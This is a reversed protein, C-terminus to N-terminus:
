NIAYLMSFLAGYHRFGEPTVFARGDKVSLLGNQVLFAFASKINENSLAIKETQFSGNYAAIALYKSTLEDHPLHYTFEEPYAAHQLMEKVAPSNKGINYSVGDSSMSQASLGFGKYAEGNLMRSRLYSSTGEDNEDLSFTNQGFRAHYGMERFAAYYTSYQSYLTEKDPIEKAKIMNTRLEYLTVHQPTLFKILEIDKHITEPNQGKLGYMLDLNIKEIGAARAKEICEKMATPTDQKRKHTCLVGSSSSQIGLSLRKIGSRAIREIKSPTLTGFTGEISPEFGPALQMDAITNNYIDLLLSFCEETLSTPTGGGIDFGNLQIGPYTAKFQAIDKGVTELYHRQTAEDPCIIRTYECFSCLQKCFPIHLYFSLRKDNAFSLPRHVRYQAWDSPQLPYSTNWQPNEKRSEFIKAFEM